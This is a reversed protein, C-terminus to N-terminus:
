DNRVYRVNLMKDLNHDYQFENYALSIISCASFIRIREEESRDNGKSYLGRLGAKPSPSRIVPIPMM